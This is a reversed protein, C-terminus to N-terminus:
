LGKMADNAHGDGTLLLTANGDEVYIMISALNPPTVKARDGATQHRHAVAHSVAILRREGTQTPM